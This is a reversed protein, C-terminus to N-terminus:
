QLKDLSADIRRYLPKDFDFDSYSKAKKLMNEAKQHKSKELYMEGLECYSHPVVYAEEIILGEM